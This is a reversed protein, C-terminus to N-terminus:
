ALVNSFANERGSTHGTGAYGSSRILPASRCFHGMDPREGGVSNTWEEQDAAERYAWRHGGCRGGRKIALGVGNLGRRIAFSAAGITPFTKGTDLNVVPRAQGKM